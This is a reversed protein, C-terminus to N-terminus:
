RLPPEKYMKRSDCLPDLCANQYALLGRTHEAVWDPSVRRRAVGTEIAARAVARAEEVMARPDIPTTIICEESLESDPILGAIAASAAANMEHNIDSAMADLAGRFIGPFGLVNNIQNPFDSRGTAVVRAGAEKADDPHIEPDPNSMALVISDSAMSRVMAPTVLNPGSLGVFVDAGKLADALKGQIGGRNTRLAIEEKVPNMGTKRGTYIAGERDCLIVDRAGTRLYFNSCAIGAAGAGNVVVKVDALKKGVVKLANILGAMSVVATGHQDDHFVPIAMEKKLRAEIDFCRPASIDELNIGGYSPELAKVIRVIEDPDKTRLCIPVADVGALAKFLVCKGEMVPLGAEPGIDGLGLVATGDTVVAVTNAKATYEFVKSPDRAIERCPEAVGPTYAMSLHHFTRVPCKSVVEIKGNGPFNGAHYALSDRKLNKRQEDTLKAACKGTM